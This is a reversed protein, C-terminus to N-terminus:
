PENESQDQAWIQATVGSHGSPRKGEELIEDAALVANAKDAGDAAAIV